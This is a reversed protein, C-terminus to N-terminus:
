KGNKGYHIQWNLNVVIRRGNVIIVNAKKINTMFLSAMIVNVIIM